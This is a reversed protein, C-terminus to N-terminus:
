GKAVSKVSSVGRKSRGMNWKLLDLLMFIRLQNLPLHLKIRFCLELAAFIRAM